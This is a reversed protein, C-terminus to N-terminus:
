ILYYEIPLLLPLRIRTEKNYCYCRLPLRTKKAIVICKFNFLTDEFPRLGGSLLMPVDLNVSSTQLVDM